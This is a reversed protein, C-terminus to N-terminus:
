GATGCIRRRGGARGCPLPKGRGHWAEGKVAGGAGGYPRGEAAARREQKAGEETQARLDEQSDRDHKYPRKVFRGGNVRRGKDVTVM